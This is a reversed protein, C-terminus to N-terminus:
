EKGDRNERKINFIKKGDETTREYYIKDVNNESLYKALMSSLVNKNDSKNIAFYIYLIKGDKDEKIKDDTSNTRFGCVVCKVINDEYGYHLWGNDYFTALTILLDNEPIIKSGKIIEYAQMFRSVELYDKVKDLIM